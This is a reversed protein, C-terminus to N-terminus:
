CQNSSSGSSSEIMSSNGHLDSCKVQRYQVESCKRCVSSSLLPLLLILRALPHLARAKCKAKTVGPM